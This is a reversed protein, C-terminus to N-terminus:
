FSTHNLLEKTRQSALNRGEANGCTHNQVRSTTWPCSWEDCSEVSCWRVRFLRCRPLVRKHPEIVVGNMVAKLAAYGYVFCVVDLHSVNQTWPCSWEDWFDVSKHIHLAFHLLFLRTISKQLMANLDPFGQVSYSQFFVYCSFFFPSFSLGIGWLCYLHHM